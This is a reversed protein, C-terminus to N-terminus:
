TRMADSTNTDIASNSVKERRNERPIAHSSSTLCTRIITAAANVVTETTSERIQEKPKM